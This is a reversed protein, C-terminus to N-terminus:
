NLAGAMRLVIENILEPTTAFNFRVHGAGGAGFDAGESFGVRATELLHAAPRDWGHASLDIWALYTAEPPRMTAKPLHEGVLEDLLARNHDLRALTSDLWSRGRSYAAESAVLGFTSVGLKDPTFYSSWIEHDSDNTLVVHASKLGPINWAKSAATITVVVDPDVSAAAIHSSGPLTLAGHIEDSLVRADYESALAIVEELESHDLSRGVPNWPHCLVLSGAGERFAREIGDLDLTWRGEQDCKSTVDIRGRGAREAVSFFPFYAPTPVIIPTGPRTLHVIARRLGEVVDPVHHVRDAEVRWGYREAWFQSAAVGTEAMISDYPYGTDSRDVAEHLAAAIPPALPYDMEAVWAPIVDPEFFNWKLGRQNNM